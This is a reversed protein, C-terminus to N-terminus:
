LQPLLWCSCSICIIAEPQHSQAKHQHTHPPIPFFSNSKMVFKILYCMCANITLFLCSKIRKYESCQVSYVVNLTLFLGLSNHIM